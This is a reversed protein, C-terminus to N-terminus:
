KLGGGMKISGAEARLDAPPMEIAISPCMALCIGCGQCRDASISMEGESFFPADYPLDASLHSM